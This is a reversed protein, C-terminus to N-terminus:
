FVATNAVKPKVTQMYYYLSMQRASDKYIPGLFSALKAVKVKPM